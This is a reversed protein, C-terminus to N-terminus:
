DKRTHTKLYRKWMLCADPTRQPKTGCGAWSQCVLLRDPIAEGREQVPAWVQRTGHQSTSPLAPSPSSAPAVPALVAM